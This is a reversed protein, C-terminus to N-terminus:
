KSYKVVFAPHINIRPDLHPPLTDSPLSEIEKYDAVMLLSNNPATTTTDVTLKEISKDDISSVFITALRGSGPTLDNNTPGLDAIMGLTVCQATTDPRFKKLTFQEARGGVFLASDAVIKVAGADLKFPISMGAIIEDNTYNVTISWNASDISAIDVYVTDTVGFHDVQASSAAPMLLIALLGFVPILKKM